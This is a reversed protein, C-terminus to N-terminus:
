QKRLYDLYQDKRARFAEALRRTEIARRVEAPLKEVPLVKQQVLAELFDHNLVSGIACLQDAIDRLVGVARVMTAYTEEEPMEDTEGLGLDKLDGTIQSATAVLMGEGLNAVIEREVQSEELEDIDAAILDYNILFDKLLTPTRIPRIVDDMIQLKIRRMQEPTSKKYLPLVKLDRRLRTLAMRVRWPLRRERGVMEHKFVTSIHLIDHDVFAQTLRESAERIPGGSPPQSMLEVFKNFEDASADAKISFSILKWRNFFDLFKPTFLDAMGKLMLQHLPLAVEDYGEITIERSDRKELILYTLEPRGSVVALFQTYLGKMSKQAEPHDAAYYGTRLMAQILALTFDALPAHEEKSQLAAETTANPAPEDNM